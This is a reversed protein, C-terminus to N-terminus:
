KSENALEKRIKMLMEGLRNKGRGECVGWYNDNWYNTEELYKSGTLLLKERLDLNRTFKDKLIEYMVKDKIKDWGKKMRFSKGKKKCELPSLDQFLSRTYLDDTKAAQYAGESSTYMMEEYMVPCLHYNSLFRYEDFFGKVSEENHVKIAELLERSM